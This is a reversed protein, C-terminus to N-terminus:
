GISEEKPETRTVTLTWMTTLCKRAKNRTRRRARNEEPLPVAARRQHFRSLKDPAKSPWPLQTTAPPHGTSFEHHSPLPTHLPTPKTCCLHGNKSKYWIIGMNVGVNPSEREKEDCPRPAGTCNHAIPGSIERLSVSSSANRRRGNNCGRQNQHEAVDGGRHGVM